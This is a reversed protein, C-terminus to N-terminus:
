RFRKVGELQKTFMDSLVHIIPRSRLRINASVSMGSQLNLKTAGSEAKQQKLSVTAPFRYYPDKQDPPLADSGISTLTGQIYGFEGAPFSDVGVTVPLGTRVFGIDANTINIKAVLRSDPVLKLVTKDANVVASPSVKLDFVKGAVPAKIVRYSIDENLKILESRLAELERNNANMQGAVAALTSVREERLSAIESKKEQVDNRQNLYQIRSYGGNKYLPFLDAEIRQSLKLTEQRSRLRADIQILKARTQQTEQVATLLKRQLLPDGVASSLDPPLPESSTDAGTNFINQLSRNQSALIQITTDVAMRRGKLAMAQISVLPTGAAVEQGDKVFVQNVVGAAQAQVESVSGSPELRGRVTITQDMRATFAWLLSGGFIAVSLWILSSSWHTGQRVAM